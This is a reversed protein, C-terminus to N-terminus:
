LKPPRYNLIDDAKLWGPSGTKFRQQARTAQTRAEVTKGQLFLSEAASLQAMAQDGKRDYAM